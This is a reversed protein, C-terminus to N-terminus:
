IEQIICTCVFFLRFVKNVLKYSKPGQIQMAVWLVRPVYRVNVYVLINKFNRNICSTMTWVFFYTPKVPRCNCCLYSHKMLELFLFAPFLNKQGDEGAVKWDYNVALTLKLLIRIFSGNSFLNPGAFPSTQPLDNFLM